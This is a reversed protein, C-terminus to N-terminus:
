NLFRLLLLAQQQAPRRARGRRVQVALREGQEGLGRTYYFRTYYIEISCLIIAYLLIYYFLIAVRVLQASHEDARELEQLLQARQELLLSYM